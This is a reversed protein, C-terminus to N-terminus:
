DRGGGSREVERTERNEGGKREDRQFTSDEGKDAGFSSSSLHFYVGTSAGWGCMVLRLRQRDRKNFTNESTLPEVKSVSLLSSVSLLCHSLCFLLVSRRPKLVLSVSYLCDLFLSM